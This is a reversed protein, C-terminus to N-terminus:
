RLLAVVRPARAKMGKSDISNHLNEAPYTIAYADMNTIERLLRDELKRSKYKFLYKYALQCAPIRQSVM